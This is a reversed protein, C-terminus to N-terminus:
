CKKATLFRFVKFHFHFLNIIHSYMFIYINKPTIKEM